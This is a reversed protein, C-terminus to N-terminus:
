ESVQEFIDNCKDMIDGIDDATNDPLNDTKAKIATIDAQIVDLKGLMESWVQGTIARLNSGALQKFMPALLDIETDGGCYICTAEDYVGDICKPCIIVM